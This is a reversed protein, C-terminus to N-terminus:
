GYKNGIPEGRMFNFLESFPLVSDAEAYTVADDVRAKAWARIEDLEAQGIGDDQLRKEYLAIPDRSLWYEVETAPRYTAADYPNHGKMRYTLAEILVPKGSRVIPEATKAARYVSFVDNGDAVLVRVGFAEVRKAISGGGITKSTKTYEAYQNNELVFLVPVGLYSAMNLGESFAGINVTGDGFFAISMADSGLYKLAYGVGVAIPIHSGVIATSYLAGKEPEMIVHMSGALGRAVGGEKGYLEAMVKKPDIGLALAHGHGRYTGLVMDGKKIIEVVTPAIAEEGLYLHSLGGLVGKSVYLDEAKEEFARILVMKRYIGLLRDRTIGFAKYEAPSITPVNIEDM